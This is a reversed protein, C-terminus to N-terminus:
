WRWERPEATMQMQGRQNVFRVSIGAANGTVDCRPDVLGQETKFATGIVQAPSVAHDGARRHAASQGAHIARNRRFFEPEIRGDGDDRTVAPPLWPACPIM